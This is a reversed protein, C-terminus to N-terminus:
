IRFFLSIVAFVSSSVKDNSPEFALIKRASPVNKTATLFPIESM